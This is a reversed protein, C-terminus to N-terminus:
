KIRHAAGGTYRKWGFRERLFQYEAGLLTVEKCGNSVLSQVEEKIDAITRSIERGCMPCSVIPVIIIM